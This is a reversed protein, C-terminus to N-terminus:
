SQCRCPRRLVPCHDLYTTQYSSLLWLCRHITLVDNYENDDDEVIYVIIVIIMMIMLLHNLPQPSALRLPSLRGLPAVPYITMMMTMMTMSMMMVVAMITVLKVLMVLMKTAMVNVEVELYSPM